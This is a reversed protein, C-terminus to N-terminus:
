PLPQGVAQQGDVPRGASVALRWGLVAVLVVKVAFLTLSVAHLQAFSLGGGGTARAQAMMPQLVHYGVITCLMAALPLALTAGFQPVEGRRARWRALLALALGLVLSATAERSLVIAVVRGADAQALVAFPAPTAIAAVCVMLGLWLGALWASVRRLDLSRWRPGPM